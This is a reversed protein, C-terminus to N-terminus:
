RKTQLYSVPLYYVYMSLQKIVLLLFLKLIAKITLHTYNGTPQQLKAEAAIVVTGLCNM